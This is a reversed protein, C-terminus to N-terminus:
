LNGLTEELVVNLRLDAADRQCVRSRQVQLPEVLVQQVAPPYVANLGLFLRFTQCRFGHSVDMLHDTRRVVEGHRADRPAYCLPKERGYLIAGKFGWSFALPQRGKVGSSSM